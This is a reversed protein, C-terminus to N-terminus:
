EVLSLGLKESVKIPTSPPRPKGVKAFAQTIAEQMVAHATDGKNGVDLDEFRAVWSGEGKGTDSVPGVRKVTMHGFTEGWWVGEGDKSARGTPVSASEFSKWDYKLPASRTGSTGKGKGTLDKVSEPLSVTYSGSDKDVYLALSLKGWPLLAALHELYATEKDSVLAIEALAALKRAALSKLNDGEKAYFEAVVEKAKGKDALFRAEKDAGQASELWKDLKEQSLSESVFLARALPVIANPPVDLRACRAVFAKITSTQVNAGFDLAWDTFQGVLADSIPSEHTEGGDGKAQESKGKGVKDKDIVVMRRRPGNGENHPEQAGQTPPARTGGRARTRESPCAWLVM